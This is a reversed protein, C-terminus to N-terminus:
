ASGEQETVNSRNRINLHAASPFAHVIYPHHRASATAIAEPMNKHAPPGFRLLEALVVTPSLGATRCSPSGVPELVDGSLLLAGTGAWEANFGQSGCASVAMAKQAPIVSTNEAIIAEITGANAPTGNTVSSASVGSALCKSILM